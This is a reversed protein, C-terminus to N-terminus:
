PVDVFVEQAFRKTAVIKSLDQFVMEQIIEM